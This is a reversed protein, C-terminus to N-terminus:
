CPVKKFISSSGRFTLFNKEIKNVVKSIIKYNFKSIGFNRSISFVSFVM